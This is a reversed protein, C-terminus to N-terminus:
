KRLVAQDQNKLYGYSKVRKDLNSSVLAWKKTIIGEIWYDLGFMNKFNEFKSNQESEYEFKKQVYGKIRLETESSGLQM